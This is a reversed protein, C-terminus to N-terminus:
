VAIYLIVRNKGATINIQQCYISLTMKTMSITYALEINVYKRQRLLKAENSCVIENCLVEILCATSIGIAIQVQPNSHYTICCLLAVEM